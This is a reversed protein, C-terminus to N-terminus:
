KASITAERDTGGDVSAFSTEPIHLRKRFTTPGALLVEADGGCKIQEIRAEPGLGALLWMEAGRPTSVLHVTGPSGKGGVESGPEASPWNDVGGPHARSHDLQVAAEYRPAGGDTVTDWVAEAPIVARKPAFGEATAVFELRAGVPMHEVDVPAQGVRLLVEANEPVNKVVISEHCRPAPPAAAASTTAPPPPESRGSFFAPKLLYIAGAGAALVILAIVSLTRDTGPARPPRFSSVDAVAMKRASPSTSVARAGEGRSPRPERPERPERLSPPPRQASAVTAVEGPYPENALQPSIATPPSALAHAAPPVRAVPPAQSMNLLSEVDSDDPEDDYAQASGPPPPTPELGVLAKLENRTAQEGRSSVGFSALLHDVEDIQPAKPEERPPSPAVAPPQNSRSAVAATLQEKRLEVTPLESLDPGSPAPPAAPAPADESPVSSALVDSPPQRRATPPEEVRGHPQSLEDHAMPDREPARPAPALDQMRPAPPPEPELVRPPPEPELVRPPPEPELVRPPPEPQFVRPPPEPEFVRPPPEPVRPEPAREVVRPAPASERVGPAPASEVIVRPLPAPEPARAPPERPVAHSPSSGRRPAPESSAHTANRGVGLTVRKVERALRALARRGAARNVPILAAELEEILGPLGGAGGRRRAVGGLAPTQSGSAELLKALIARVSSEADAGQADNPERRPRVLAVSGEEGIYVRTPDVDGTTQAAGEAIELALYGALEPALPVRKAGVVVFVDDLTVSSELTSV